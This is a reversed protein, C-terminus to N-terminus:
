RNFTHWEMNSNGCFFTVTNTNLSLMINQRYECLKSFSCEVRGTCITKEVVNEM